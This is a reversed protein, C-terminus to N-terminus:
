FEENNPEGDILFDHKVGERKKEEGLRECRDGEEWVGLGKKGWEEGVGTESRGGGPSIWVSMM